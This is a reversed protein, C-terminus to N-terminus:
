GFSLDGKLSCFILFFFDKWRAHLLYFHLFLSTVNGSGSLLIFLYMTCFLLLVSHSLTLSAWQVSLFFISLSLFVLLSTVDSSQLCFLLETAVEAYTTLLNNHNVKYISSFNLMYSVNQTLKSNTITISLCQTYISHLQLM